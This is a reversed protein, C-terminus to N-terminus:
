NHRPKKYAEDFELYSVEDFGKLPHGITYLPIDDDNITNKKGKHFVDKNQINSVVSIVFNKIITETPKGQYDFRIFPKGSVFLLILPVYKIETITGRSMRVVHTEVSVNIMGFQVGGLQGPLRKFIPILNQCHECKTSYFLVLSIGRINNCLLPGKSGEQINFDDNQLFLLGAM